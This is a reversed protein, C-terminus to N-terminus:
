ILSRVFCCLVSDSFLRLLLVHIVFVTLSAVVFSEFGYVILRVQLFADRLVFAKVVTADVELFLDILSRLTEEERNSSSGRDPLNPVCQLM